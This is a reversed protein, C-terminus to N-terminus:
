QRLAREAEALAKLAESHARQADDRAREAEAEAREASDVDAEARQLEARLERLRQRVEQVHGRAAAHESSREALLAAAAEAAEQAQALRRQAAERAERARQAARLDIPERPEAAPGTAATASGPTQAPRPRSAAGTTTSPAVAGFGAYSEAKTLRGTRVEDAVEPRALAAGLTEQAERQVSDSVSVGASAALEVARRLLASELQRRQQTLARLEPGAAEAQARALERSLEFLQEMVDHQDRWLLNILWASMTPKRLQGIERALDRDGAQRAERVAADRAASFEDPKLAYLTDAVQELRAVLQEGSPVWHPSREDLSASQACVNGEPVSM